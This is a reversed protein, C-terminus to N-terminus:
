CPPVSSDRAFDWKQRSVKGVGLGAKAVWGVAAHVLVYAWSRIAYEPDYEWTEFSRTRRGAEDRGGFLVLHVAEWYNFTEDCDAITAYLAASLRVLLLTTFILPLPFRPAPLLPASTSPSFPSVPRLLWRASRSASASAAATAPNTTKAM